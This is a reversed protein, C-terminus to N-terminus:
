IKIKLFPSYKKRFECKFNECDKCIEYKDNLVLICDHLNLEQFIVNVSREHREFQYENLQVEILLTEGSGTSSNVFFFFPLDKKLVEKALHKYEIAQILLDPKNQLSNIYTKDEYKDFNADVFFSYENYKTKDTLNASYKLDIICEFPERKEVEGNEKVFEYNKIICRLDLIGKRWFEFNENESYKYELVESVELIEIEYHKFIEILNDVANNIKETDAKSVNGAATKPPEPTEGNRNKLEKGTMRKVFLYEFYQGNKAADSSTEVFSKDFYLDTIKKGCEKGELIKKYAKLFSQSLNIRKKM